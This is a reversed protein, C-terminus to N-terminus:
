VLFRLLIISYAAVLPVMVNDDVPHRGLKLEIGELTMSIVSAVIAEIISVFVMAGLTAAVIGFVTGELLRENMPHKTKRLYKTEKLKLGIISTFADGLSLIMISAYVIDPQHPFLILLLFVGFVFLIAGKAPLKEDRDVLNLIQTVLPLKQKKHIFALPIGILLIFSIHRIDILGNKLLVVASIGALIHVLKRRLELNYDM